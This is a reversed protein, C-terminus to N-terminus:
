GRSPQGPDKKDPGSYTEIFFLMGRTSPSAATMVVPQPLSGSFRTSANECVGGREFQGFAVCPLREGRGSRAALPDLL